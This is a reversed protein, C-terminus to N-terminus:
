KAVDDDVLAVVVATDEARVDGVDQPPQPPDTRRVARRRGEDRKKKVAQQRDELVRQSPQGGLRRRHGLRRM